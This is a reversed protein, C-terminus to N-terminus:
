EAHPLRWFWTSGTGMGDKVAVIGLDAKARKLTRECIGERKALAKIETSKVPGDALLGRLFEAAEGMPTEDKRDALVEDANYDFQGQEWRVAMDEIRFALSKALPAINCKVPVFLRRDADERDKSVLWVARAAASFAVSGLTRHIAAKGTDKTLHSIGLVACGYNEAMACFPLIATRVEGNCSQDTEGLYASIPDIIVLVVDGFERLMAELADAYRTVDFFADGAPGTVGQMVIVRTTDAGMADLRPKVTFALHDESTLFIVTGAPPAFPGAASDPWPAGRSIRAAMDLAAFTKGSGEVGVLMSFMAAPLRNQWLWRVPKAEVASMRTYVPRIPTRDDAPDTGPSASAAGQRRASQRRPPRASVKCGAPLKANERASKLVKAIETDPLPPQNGANWARLIDLAEQEALGFDNVLQAAHIFAAQNRQGQPVSEWRAAYKMMRARFAMVSEGRSAPTAAPAAQARDPEMLLERLSAPLEAVGAGPDRVWEYDVGSVHRSTPGVVYGGAARIDLGPGLKGASNRIVSGAPWTFYHHRGNGTKVTATDPLEIWGLSEDGGHPVDVDLVIIGSEPGTVVGINVVGDDAFWSCIVSADRTGSKVGHPALRGHPHKGPSSCDERGCDCRGDTVSYLPLVRWGRDLYAIAASCLEQQRPTM